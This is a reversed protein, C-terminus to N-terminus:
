KSLFNSVGCHDAQGSHLLGLVRVRRFEIKKGNQEFASMPAFKPKMPETATGVTSDRDVAM